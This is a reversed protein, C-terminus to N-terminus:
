TRVKYVSKVKSKAKAQQAKQQQDNNYEATKNIGWKDIDKICNIQELKTESNATISNLAEIYSDCMSEIFEREFLEDNYKFLMKYTSSSMMIELTIEFEGEQHIEPMHELSLTNDAEETQKSTSFQSTDKMWNQFLFMIQILPTNSRNQSGKVKSIESFPYNGHELAEFVSNQIQRLLEDFAAGANLTSRIIVANTFLGILDAYTSEPRGQLVTGVILDEQNTYKYLLVNFVSLMLVFPSVKKQLSLEQLKETLECSIDKSYTTGKFSTNETREAKVPLKLVPLEGKLKSLWYEKLKQGESSEVLKYQWDVYDAYSATLQPLTNERNTIEAEYFHPLENVLIPMSSGDFVIHHINIFLIYQNDTTSFLYVKMLPGKELDFPQRAIEVLYNNLDTESLNTLREASFCFNNEDQIICIPEHEKLTIRAGLLPHRMILKKFASKLAEINIEKKIKFAVPLNYAYNDPKWQHLIWLSKQTLSLPFSSPKQREIHVPTKPKEQTINIRQKLGKQTLLYQALQNVSNNEYIEKSTLQVGYQKKVADILNMGNISHLGYKTLEQEADIDEKPIGLVKAAIKHIKETITELTLNEYTVDSDMAEDTSHIHIPQSGDSDIAKVQEIWCRTREFPYKPLSIRRPKEETYLTNWDISAGKIWMEAAKLLMDKSNLSQLISSTNEKNRLNSDIQKKNIKNATIGCSTDHRIFGDLKQLIEQTSGATFALRWDMEDRGTMLTYAMNKLNLDAQSKIYSQMHQAYAKLRGETKASLVFLIPNDPNIKLMKSSNNEAAYEELVIHANTGSFGFASVAGRRPVAQATDWSQLKTNIYFPSGEINIHENLKEFNITPPLMQKHLSLTLKIFGAIGSAGFLHGINSKVSGLACYNKKNTYNNYVETLAEVEIPDGLRSGTGQAEIISITEPNIHFRSYVDKELAIQSKVSPATIGNTKGDQNVGWGRIVAYIHDKDRVADKLRKLLVVGVGEGPVFGSARTDFAFCKGDPSLMGAKSCMIYMSPGTLSSVGAAIALDCNGLSLNNCAEAVAVLSSSCATDISLCPGQLNLLYSVRGALIAVSNGTLGQANLGKDGINQSYDGTTCGVFVGCRSQSLTQSTLGADEMCHWCSELFLRQQPDMLEAESPAINFFQPDFKDYDEILGGWKCCTKNVARPDPDYLEDIHWRTSPIESICDIGNSINNWYEDLNKSKPLQGAMGIVAIGDLHLKNDPTYSIGTNEIHNLKKQVSKHANDKIQMNVENSKPSTTHSTKPEVPLDPAPNQAAGSKLINLLEKRADEPKMKGAQIARLIEKSDM